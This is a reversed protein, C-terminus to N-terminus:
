LKVKMLRASSSNSEDESSIWFTKPDIIKISEVQTKGIPIKYTDIQHNQNKLSFDNIVHIYYENFSITSTLALTNTTKDYDAGTVISKTDISGIKKAKFNGAKKPLSYIETIKKLKNKTFIILNKDISILGEADYQSSRYSTNFKIQEPYIFNIIEIKNRNKYIPVKIVSLNKRTDYNNGFDAVYIYEDDAALSEWDNNKCCDLKRSDIINGKQDLYFIIPDNGSDNITILKDNIVELGSTEDLKKSLAIDVVLEQSFLNNLALFCIILYIYKTKIRLM